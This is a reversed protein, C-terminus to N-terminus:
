PALGRGRRETVAKEVAADVLEESAGLYSKPNLAAELEEPSLFKAVTPNTKLVEGFPRQESKSQSFLLQLLRHAEQRPMGKNVLTNMVAESM